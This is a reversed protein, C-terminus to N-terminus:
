GMNELWTRIRTKTEEVDKVPIAEIGTRKVPEDNGGPYLADGVFVMQNIPIGLREHLQEVGYGKDVGKRTIDISTTGPLKIEFEPLLPKMVNVIEQRRDLASGSWAEKLEIPAEQGLASFTIQTGRDEILEGYTKEPHVYGVTKFAQEFTDAILKREEVTLELAYMTEWEGNKYRLYRSSSTPMLHLRELYSEPCTLNDLLQRKFVPFWGGGIVAVHHKELLQSLLTDMESDMATKSRALTGDLDFIFLEKTFPNEQQIPTTM